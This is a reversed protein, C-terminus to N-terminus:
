SNQEDKGDRADEAADEAFAAVEEMDEELGGGVGEAIGEAGAEIEGVAADTGDGGNVSEAVEEEKM